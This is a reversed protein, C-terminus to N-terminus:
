IQLRVAERFLSNKRIQMIISQIIASWAYFPRCYKKIKFQPKRLAMQTKAIKQNRPTRRSAASFALSAVVVVEM